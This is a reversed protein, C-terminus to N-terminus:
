ADGLLDGTAGRCRRRYKAMMVEVFPACGSGRFLQRVTRIVFNRHLRVASRVQAKVAESQKLLFRAVFARGDRVHVVEERLIGACLQRLQDAWRADDMLEHIHGHLHGLFSLAATEHAFHAVAM